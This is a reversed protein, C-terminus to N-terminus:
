RLPGIRCHRRVDPCRLCRSQDPGVRALLDFYILFGIAGSFSALFLLSNHAAIIFVAGIVVLTWEERTRPLPESRYFAYGLMLFGAIDYRVAAYLVPPFSVIGIKIAVYAVGWVLALVLFLIFNRYRMCVM